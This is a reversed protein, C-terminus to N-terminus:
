WSLLALASTNGLNWSGLSVGLTATRPFFSKADRRKLKGGWGFCALWHRCPPMSCSGRSDRYYRACRWQENARERVGAPWSGM